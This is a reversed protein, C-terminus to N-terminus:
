SSWRTEKHDAFAANSARYFTVDEGEPNKFYVHAGYAKGSYEIAISKSGLCYAIAQNAANLHKQNLNTLFEALRLHTKAIDPRRFVALHALSGVRQQYALTRQSNM